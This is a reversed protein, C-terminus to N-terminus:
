ARKDKGRLADLGTTDLQRGFSVPAAIAARLRLLFEARSVETGGMRMVHPTAQQVDLLSFGKSELHMVLAVLAIKSADRVRYFMSEAAFFGGIAVGYLGGALEEDVWVEVSHAHGERHLQGYVEAMRPTIWTGGGYRRPEACGRVVQDFCTDCTARYMRSRIRRALRRSIRLQDFEIVARPDPSFWALIEHEGDVIPWPFIGQRYAALVWDPTLHGGVMLLGDEIALEVPPFRAPIDQANM